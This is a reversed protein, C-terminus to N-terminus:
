IDRRKHYDTLGNDARNSILNGTMMAARIASLDGFLVGDDIILDIEARMTALREAPSGILTVTKEHRYRPLSQKKIM